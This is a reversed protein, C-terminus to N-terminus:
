WDRNNDYDEKISDTQILLTNLIFSEMASKAEESPQTKELFQIALAVRDLKLRMLYAEDDTIRKM